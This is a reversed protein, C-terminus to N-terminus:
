KIEALFKGAAARLRELDGNAHIAWLLGPDTRHYAHRLQNGLDAVRRWPVEPAREKLDDPIHRSAESIIELFREYAAGKLADERL